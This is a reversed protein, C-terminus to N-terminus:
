SQEDNYGQPLKLQKEMEKGPRFRIKYCAGRRTRPSNENRGPNDWLKPVFIGWEPVLAVEEGEGLADSMLHVMSYYVKEIQALDLETEKSVKHFLENKEM